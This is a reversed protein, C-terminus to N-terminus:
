IYLHMKVQFIKACHFDDDYPQHIRSAHFQWDLYVSAGWLMRTISFFNNIITINKPKSYLVCCLGVCYIKLKLSTVAGDPSIQINFWHWQVPQHPYKSILILSVARYAQSFANLHKFRDSCHFLWTVHHSESVCLRVCPCLRKYNLIYM